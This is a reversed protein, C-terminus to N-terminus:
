KNNNNIAAEREKFKILSAKFSEFNFRSSGQSGERSQLGEQFLDTVPQPKVVRKREAQLEIEQGEIIIVEGERIKEDEEQLVPKKEEELVETDELLNSDIGIVADNLDQTEEIKKIAISEPNRSSCTSKSLHLSTSTADSRDDSQREVREEDDKEETKENMEDIQRLAFNWFPDIDMPKCHRKTPDNKISENHDYVKQKAELLAAGYSDRWERCDWKAENLRDFEVNISDEDESFPREELEIDGETMEMRNAWTMSESQMGFSDCTEDPEEIEELHMEFDDSIPSLGEKRADFMYFEYRGNWGDQLYNKKDVQSWRRLGRLM